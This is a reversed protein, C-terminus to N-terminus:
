FNMEAVMSAMSFFKFTAMPRESLPLLSTFVLKLMNRGNRPVMKLSCNRM